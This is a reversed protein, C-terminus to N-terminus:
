RGYVREPDFIKEEVIKVEDGELARYFCSAYGDHCCAGGVQEVKFLVTDRDCDLLVEKIKQVHGSTDGKHWLCNRSRSFFHAEKTKLSLEWAEKNLYALMLVKKTLYDQVIVPVLGNMKEFDPEM